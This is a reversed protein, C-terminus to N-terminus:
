MLCKWMFLSMEVEFDALTITEDVAGDIENGNAFWQYIVTEDVSIDSITTLDVQM